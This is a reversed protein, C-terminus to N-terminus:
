PYRANLDIEIQLNNAELTALLARVSAEWRKQLMAQVRADQEPIGIEMLEKTTKLQENELKVSWDRYAEHFIQALKTRDLGISM